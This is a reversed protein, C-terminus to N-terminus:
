FLEKVYDFAYRAADTPKCVGIHTTGLVVKPPKDGGYQIDRVVKDGKAYVVLRARSFGALGQSQLENTREELRKLIGDETADLDSLIPFRFKAFIGLLGGLGPLAQMALSIVNVGHHAPAFLALESREVWAAGDIHALLQAQRALVAGLSHAVLLIRDYSREPLNQNAPLAGSALPTVLRNLSHYLQAAHEGAQGNFTDYGYFVIDSNRFADDPLLISPFNNWTGLASGGFGHVFVVLTDPTEFAFFGQTRDGESIEIPVTHNSSM